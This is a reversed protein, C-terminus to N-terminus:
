NNAGQEKALKVYLYRKISRKPTKAFEEPHIHIKVINEYSGTVANVQKRNEEMINVIDEQTLKAADAADNDVVVFAVLKDEANQLVLSELVFPMNNLKAEIEEPYINQGNPGLLMNKNRGRIYITGDEDMTGMDGTHLWGEEDIVAKTAEENKYYGMMMNEGRVVIEGVENHPDSSLIKAEMCPLVKGVSNLKYEHWFSHSILPGCETMGYGVTFRFGIKKFFEEAEPNMPAGGIIVEKFEGGFAETLKRNVAALITSDLFPVVMAWRMTRKEMMPQIQKRYIKEIILPVTFICSPKVEAFAKLLIKPSPIKGLYTTHSGACFSTLFDFACGYAHALPLFALARDGRELLKSGLGYVINGALANGPLMVGKSFGTTGSTYSICALETNPITPFLVDASTFGNPYQEEFNESLKNYANEIQDKGPKRYLLNNNALNFIAEVYLLEEEDINEWLYDSIFLLKSDSHNVIHKIDNVNFDQLIPVIVAGYTIAAIYVICWRSGNKGVLACKDGKEFGISKFLVHLRAVEEAVEGYTYTKKEIYDTFAPLEWNSKMSHEFLRVLNESVM